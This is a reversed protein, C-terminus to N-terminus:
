IGGKSVKLFQQDVYMWAEEEDIEQLKGASKYLSDSLLGCLEINPTVGIIMGQRGHMLKKHLPEPLSYYRKIQSVTEITIVHIRDKENLLDSFPFVDENKLMRYFRDFSHILLIYEKSETRMESLLNSFQDATHIHRNEECHLVNMPDVVYVNTHDKIM